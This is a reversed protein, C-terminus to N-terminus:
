ASRPWNELQQPFCFNVFIIRSALYVCPSNLDVSKREKPFHGVLDFAVDEFPETILLRVVMPAKTGGSQNHMQCLVCSRCFKVIVSERRAKPLVIVERADSLEDEM